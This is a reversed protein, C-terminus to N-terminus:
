CFRLPDLQGVDIVTKYGCVMQATILGSVPAMSFGLMAHGANIWANNLQLKGIYPLGDPTCPRFGSWVKEPLPVSLDPFYLHAASHIAEIRKQRHAMRFGSIELTGAFRTETEFPTVAVRRETLICPIRPSFAAKSVEFSYGKGPQMPLNLDFMETLRPSWAGGCLVVGDTEISNEGFKVASVSGNEIELDNVETEWHFEVGTKELLSIMSNVLSSPHMHADEPFFLGGLCNVNCGLKDILEDREFIRSEVKLQDARRALEEEKRRGKESNFIMMLGDRRYQVNLQQASIIEKYLDNSMSNLKYLLEGTSRVHKENSHRYFLWIWRLLAPSLSPKIYFPSRSDFMWKLGSTIVGPAALPVFHSPSVYGANGYSCNTWDDRKKKDIIAVKVGQQSLYWSTFLGSVGAGIVTIRKM